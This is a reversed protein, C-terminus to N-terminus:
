EILVTATESCCSTPVLRTAAIARRSPMSKRGPMSRIRSATSVARANEANIPKGGPFATSYAGMEAGGQVGSHGRIPMLGCKPRGVFGRSLGLNIIARVNDEGFEHQTVGMSWVIVATKAEGVMRAFGLMEDRSAGALRELEEWQMGALEAELEGFGACHKQVFDRDIWDNAIM